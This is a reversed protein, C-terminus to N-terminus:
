FILIKILGLLLLHAPYFAYLLYRPMNGKEGNYKGILWLSILGPLEFPNNVLLVISVMINRLKTNDYFIHFMLVTLMGLFGYDTRIYSIGVCLIITALIAAAYSFVATIRGHKESHFHEKILRIVSDWVIIAILGFLLTFGVNQYTFELIGHKFSRLNMAIDFPIESIIAFALLRLFYKSVSRTRHYGEAIFFCFIPFALRGIGRLIIDLILIPLGAGKQHHIYWPTSMVGLELMTCSIHDIFMTIIAIWKLKSANM